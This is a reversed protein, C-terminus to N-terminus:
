VNSVLFGIKWMEGEAGRGGRDKYCVGTEIWFRGAVSYAVHSSGRM